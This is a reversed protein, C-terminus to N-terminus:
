PSELSDLTVEADVLHANVEARLSTLFSVLAANDAEPLLEEDILTLVEDHAAVQAEMYAVDFEEAAVANLATVAEASHQALAQSTPNDEPTIAQETALTNADTVASNHEASMEEAFSLVAPSVARTLAVQAENAEGTNLTIVIHLIRADSLPIAAAGGEGGAGGAVSGAGAGGVADDGGAGTDEGGSGGQVPAGGAGMGGEGATAPAGADGGTGGDGATGGKGAAGSSGGKGATGAGGGKGATSGASGGKGASAGASGGRGSTGGDDDDEDSSCHILGTLSLASMLIWPTINKM